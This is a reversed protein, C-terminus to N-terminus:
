EIELLHISEAEGRDRMGWEAPHRILQTGIRDMGSNGARAVIYRFGASHLFRGADRRLDLPPLVATRLSDARTRWAGGRENRTQILLPLPSQTQPMILALRDIRKPSEFSVSLFSGRETPGRVRWSSVPNGDIALPAESGNPSAEVSSGTGAPIQQGSEFLRVEFVRLEDKSDAAAVVRIGTVAEAPLTASVEVLARPALATQLAEALQVDPTSYWFGVVNRACYGQAISTLGYIRDGASTVRELLAGAAYGDISRDLYDREPELRLAARWPIERFAWAYPDEFREAVAPWCLILQAALLLPLLFSPLASTLALALFPIAPMLFRTGANWFWPLGCILAGLCLLIGARKRLALLAFPFALFLPGIIGQLRGRYAYELPASALRFGGEYSRLNVALQHEFSANFFPNPFWSNLLPAFPNGTLMFDRAIWPAISLLAAVTVTLVPVPRKAIALVALISAMAVPLGTIKIAFCFGALLGLVVLYAPRRDHYWRVITFFSALAFFVLAADNYTSAGTIGAVPMAFYLLGAIFSRVPSINLERGTAVTLPVTGLLFAFHVLKAASHRGLAFAITFLMELGQPLMEYFGIRAPFRHLRVYEAVLGLHYTVADPQIEPAMAQITYMVAYGAFPLWLYWPIGSPHFAFRMRRFRFLAAILVVGGVALFVPATACGTLLLIFVALSQLVAGIGLRVARPLPLAPFLLLGAAYAVALTFLAGPFFM